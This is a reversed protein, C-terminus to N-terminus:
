AQAGLWLSGAVDTTHFANQRVAKEVAVLDSWADQGEKCPRGAARQEFPIRTKPYARPIAWLMERWLKHWDKTPDMEPLHQRLFHGCPQLVDYVFRKVKRPKGEEDLEEVLEERKPKANAWMAKVAVEVVRADYLDDLLGQVSKA